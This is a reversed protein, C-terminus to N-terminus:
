NKKLKVMSDVLLLLWYQHVNEIINYNNSDVIFNIKGFKSLLNKGNFGSLTILTKKSKKIYKAANIM